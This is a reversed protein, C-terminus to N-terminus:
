RKRTIGYVVENIHDYHSQPILNEMAGYITVMEAFILVREDDHEPWTKFQHESTWYLRLYQDLRENM